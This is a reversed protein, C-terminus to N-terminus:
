VINWRMRLHKNMIRICEDRQAKDEFPFPQGTEIGVDSTPPPSLLAQKRFESNRERVKDVYADYARGLEISELNMWRRHFALSIQVDGLLIALESRTAPTEDHRRQFTHPLQRYREVADLADLADAYRHMRELRRASGSNILYGTLATLAAVVAVVIPLYDKM